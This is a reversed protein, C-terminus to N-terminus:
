DPGRSGGGVVGERGRICWGDGRACQRGGMGQEGTGFKGDHRRQETERHAGGGVRQGIYSLGHLRQIAQTGLLWL